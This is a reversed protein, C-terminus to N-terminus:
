VQDKTPLRRSNWETFKVVRNWTKESAQLMYLSDQKFDGSSFREILCICKDSIGEFDAPYATFRWVYGDVEYLILEQVMTKSWPKEYIRGKVEVLDNRNIEVDLPAGRQNWGNPGSTGLNLGKFQLLLEVDERWYSRLRPSRKATFQIAGSPKRLAEISWGDQGFMLLVLTEGSGVRDMAININESLAQRYPDQAESEPSIPEFGFCNYLSEKVAGDTGRIYLGWFDAGVLDQMGKLSM